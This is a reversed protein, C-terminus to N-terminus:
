NLKNTLTNKINYEVVTITFLSSYIDDVTVLLKLNVACCAFPTASVSFAVICLSGFESMDSENEYRVV